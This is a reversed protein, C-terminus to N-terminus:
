SVSHGKRRYDHVILLEGAIFKGVQELANAVDIHYRLPFITNLGDAEDFFV